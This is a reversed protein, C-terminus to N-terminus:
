QPAELCETFPFYCDGVGGPTNAASTSCSSLVANKILLRVKKVAPAEYAKKNM